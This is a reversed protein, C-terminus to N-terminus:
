DLAYGFMPYTSRLKNLENIVSQHFQISPKPKCEEKVYEIFEIDSIQNLRIIKKTNCRILVGTVKVEHKSESLGTLVIENWYDKWTMKLIEDPNRIDLSKDQSFKELIKLDKESYSKIPPSGADHPATAVVNQPNIELIFGIRGIFTRHKEDSILSSSIKPNNSILSPNKLLKENWSGPVPAAEASWNFGTISHYIIKFHEEDELNDISTFSEPRWNEVATCEELSQAFRNNCPSAQVLCATSLIYLFLFIAKLNSMCVWHKGLM